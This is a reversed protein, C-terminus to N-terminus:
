TLHGPLQTGPVPDFAAPKGPRCRSLRRLALWSGKLVGHRHIALVAYESCTPQFRCAGAAGMHLLPSLVSKYLLLASELARTRLNLHPDKAATPRPRDRGATM